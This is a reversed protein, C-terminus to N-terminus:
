LWVNTQCRQKGRCICLKQRPPRKDAVKASIGICPADCVPGVSGSGLLTESCNFARKAVFGSAPAESRSISATSAWRQPLLERAVVVVALSTCIAAEPPDLRLRLSSGALALANGVAGSAVLGATTYAAAWFWIRSRQAGIGLPTLATLM